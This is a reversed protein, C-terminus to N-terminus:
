KGFILRKPRLKHLLPLLLLLLLCSLLVATSTTCLLWLLIITSIAADLRTVTVDVTLSCYSSTADSTHIANSATSICHSALV